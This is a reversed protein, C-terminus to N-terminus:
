NLRVNVCVIGSGLREFAGRKLVQVLKPQLDLPFRSIENLFLTGKNAM